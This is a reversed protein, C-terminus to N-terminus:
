RGMREPSEIWSLETNREELKKIRDALIEMLIENGEGPELRTKVEKLLAETTWRSLITRLKARDVLGM